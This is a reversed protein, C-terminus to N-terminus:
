NVAPVPLKAMWSGQFLPMQEVMCVYLNAVYSLSVCLGLLYKSYLLHVARHHGFIQKNLFSYLPKESKKFILGRTVPQGYFRMHPM